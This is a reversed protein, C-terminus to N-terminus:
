YGCAEQRIGYVALRASAAGRECRRNARSLHHARRAYPAPHDLTARENPPQEIRRDAGLIVAQASQKQRWTAMSRDLLAM